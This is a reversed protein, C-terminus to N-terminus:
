PRAGPTGIPSAPLRFLAHRVLDTLADLVSQRDRVDCAIVPVSAELRLADRVEDLLYRPAHDFLNVAVLFPLKQAEFYAVVDFADELRRTDVLVVAGAARYSLDDWINSFRNQGPTGFLMLVIGHEPDGTPLTIRGFDMAVTTTTKSEVGALVDIGESAQTMVAETLLPRVETVASVLTTKGTGFAGSVVIKVKRLRPPSPESPAYVSM